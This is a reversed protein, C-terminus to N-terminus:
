EGRGDTRIAEIVAAAQKGACRWRWEDPRGGEAVGGYRGVILEAQGRKIGDLLIAGEDIYGKTKILDNLWRSEATSIFATTRLQLTTKKQRPLRDPKQETTHPHAATPSGESVAWRCSGGRKTTAGCLPLDEVIARCDLCLLFGQTRGIAVVTQHEAHTKV